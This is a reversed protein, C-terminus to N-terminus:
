KDLKCHQLLLKKFQLNFRLRVVYKVIKDDKFTYNHFLLTARNAPDTIDRLKGM